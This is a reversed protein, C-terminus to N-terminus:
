PELSNAFQEIDNTSLNETIHQNELNLILECNELPCFNNHLAVHSDDLWDVFVYAAQLQQSCGFREYIHDAGNGSFAYFYRCGSSGGISSGIALYSDNQSWGHFHIAYISIPQEHCAQRDYVIITGVSVSSIDVFAFYRETNSFAWGTTDAYRFTQYSHEIEQCQKAHHQVRVFVAFIIGIVILSMLIFRFQNQKAPHKKKKM